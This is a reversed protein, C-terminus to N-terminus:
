TAQESRIAQLEAMFKDGKPRDKQEATAKRDTLEQHVTGGRKSADVEYVKTSKRCSSMGLKSKREM